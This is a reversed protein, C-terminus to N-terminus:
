LVTQGYPVMRGSTNKAMVLFDGCLTDLIRDLRKVGDHCFLGRGM